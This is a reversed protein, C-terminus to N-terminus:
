SRLTCNSARQDLVDLVHLSGSAGCAELAFSAFCAIVNININRTRINLLHKYFSIIISYTFFIIIELSFDLLKFKFYVIQFPLSFHLWRLIVTAIHHLLKFLFSGCWLISRLLSLLLNLMLLILRYLICSTDEQIYFHWMDLTSNAVLGTVLMVYPHVCSTLFEDLDGYGIDLLFLLLVDLGSVISRIRISINRM